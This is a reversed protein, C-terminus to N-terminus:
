IYTVMFVSSCWCDSSRSSSINPTSATTASRSSPQSCPSTSSPIGLHHHPEGSHSNVSRMILWLYRLLEQLAYRCIKMEQICFSIILIPIATRCILEQKLPLLTKTEVNSGRSGSESLASSWIAYRLCYLKFIRVPISCGFLPVITTFHRIVRVTSATRMARRANEGFFYGCFFNAASEWCKFKMYM